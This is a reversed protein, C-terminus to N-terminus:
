YQYFGRGSKRGLLGARLKEHQMSSPKLRPPEGLAKWVMESVTYNIDIGILDMLKFPGMRFGASELAADAQEISVLGKEVMWMTELYYHRAVRNVIFGPADKCIVSTKGMRTAVAKLEAIVNPETFPTVIIEVLKMIPAPNFFHLGAVRGPKFVSEAIATVPLSSTNTVFITEAPNVGALLNFLAVKADKNEIIAEIVLDARCDEPRGAYVLRKDIDNKEADTIKGRTVLGALSKQISAAAAKLRSGDVDYLITTFGAQAAVQAIGSGMTGAGCVVISSIMELFKYLSLRYKCRIWKQCCAQFM